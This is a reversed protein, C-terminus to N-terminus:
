GEKAGASAVVRGRPKAEAGRCAVHHNQVAGEGGPHEAACGAKEERHDRRDQPRDAVVVRKVLGPGARHRPPVGGHAQREKSQDHDNERGQSLREALLLTQRSYICERAHGIHPPKAFLRLELQTAGLTGALWQAHRDEVDVIEFLHVIAIAM